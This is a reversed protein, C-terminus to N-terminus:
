SNYNKIIRQIKREADKKAMDQRKDYLKKGRCLAIEIKVLGGKLYVKLPIISFGKQTTKGLLYRIERKNLLLKRIRNSDQNFINGEKYFSIHVQKLFCEGNDISCFGDSINIKGRRISKVETGKLEIGAEFKELIEYNFRAKRNKALIKEDTM